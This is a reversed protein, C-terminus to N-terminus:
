AEADRAPRRERLVVRTLVRLLEGLAEPRVDDALTLCRERLRRVLTRAQEFAGTEDYLARVASVVAEETGGQAARALRDWAGAELAFARLMTPRGALVDRGLAVKNADDRQWDDLDNLVQYAEGLYTCFRALVDRDFAAGSSRLGTYLAVEFAPATKLAGIALADVPRLRAGDPRGVWSLEAGQGRCLALQAASLRELIDAVCAGGLAQAQAAILRYGLGVLWDGVTLAMGVGYARHLTTRGYRLDDDDAIDDHVLSAKHLAEIAVALARVPPEVMAPADADSQLAVIGHRGLCHGAVTVFPRLRKGGLRLWELAIAETASMPEARDPETRDLATPSLYPRLLGELASPAFIARTERLLPIASRTAGDSRARSATLLELVLGPETETLECGDRLLPIAQNPVGLESVPEFSEDLSDLCAVGLIADAAGELVRMIVSSTGEAVIVQYGLERARRSLDGIVCAGCGACHLGVSDFSGQCAQPDRLCKPLLLLRRRLPVAEFQERWFANSLAVMAFGLYELPEGASALVRAGLEALRERGPPCCRPLEGAIAEATERIRRRAQADQPVRKIEDPARQVPAREGTAM